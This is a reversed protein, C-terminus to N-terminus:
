LQYTPAMIKFLFGNLLLKSIECKSANQRFHNPAKYGTDQTESIYTLIALLLLCCITTSINKKM